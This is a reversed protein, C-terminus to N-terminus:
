APPTAPDAPPTQTTPEATPDTVVPAEAVPPAAPDAPPTTEAPPTGDTPVEVPVDVVEEPTGTGPYNWTESLVTAGEVTFGHSHPQEGGDHNHVITHVHVTM